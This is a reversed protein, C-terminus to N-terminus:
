TVAVITVLIPTISGCIQCKILLSFSHGNLGIFRRGGRASIHSHGIIRTQRLYLRLLAQELRHLLVRAAVAVASDGNAVSAASVASFITDDIEFAALVAHICSNQSQFVIRVSTSEDSQNLIFVAFLTVDQCSVTQLYAVSNTGTRICVDLRAVCQLQNVNRYTSENMRNFQIRALTSLQDATCAVHCLQHALFTRECQNTQGGAFHSFHRDLATSRDTLNRINVM